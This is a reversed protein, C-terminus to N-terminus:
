FLSMALYSIGAVIGIALLLEVWFRLAGPDNTDARKHKRRKKGM